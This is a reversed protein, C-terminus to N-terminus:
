PMVAKVAHNGARLVYAVGRPLPIELMSGSAVSTHMMTGSLAYVQVPMGPELGSLYLIGDRAWVKINHYVEAPIVEEISTGVFPEGMPTTVNWNKSKAIAVQDPTCVNDDGDPNVPIFNAPEDRIIVEPLSEVLAQMAAEDILNNSCKLYRLDPNHSLDLGTLKNYSCDLYVLEPNQSVDLQTLEMNNVGLLKLKPFKSLDPRYKTDGSLVLTHLKPCDTEISELEANMFIFQLVRLEKNEKLNLHNMTYNWRCWIRRLNKVKSLDIDEFQTATIKTINKGYIRLSPTSLPISTIINIGMTSRISEGQDYQGNGNLDTWLSEGALGIRVTQGVTEEKYRIDIYQPTVEYTTAEIANDNFTQNGNENTNLGKDRAVWGKAKAIPLLDLPFENQEDENKSNLVYLDSFLSMPNYSNIAEETDLVPLSEVLKRMEGEQIKNGDIYIAEIKPNHSIELRTITNGACSIIKLDPCTEINLNSLQNNSCYLTTLAKNDSLDLSSLQNNSCYLTTLAKNDSLDLSSLQNNSCDLTTLTKNASLDLSALNQGRVDLYILSECKSADLAVAPALFSSPLLCFRSTKGYITVEEQQCSLPEDNVLAEGEDYDENGNLDIWASDEFVSNYVFIRGSYKLVLNIREGDIPAPVFRASTKRHTVPKEEIMLEENTGENILATLIQASANWGSGFLASLLTLLTLLSKRKMLSKNKITFLSQNNLIDQM